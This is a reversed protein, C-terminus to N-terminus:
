MGGRRDIMQLVFFACEMTRKAHQRGRSAGSDARAFAANSMRKEALRRALFTSFETPVAKEKVRRM